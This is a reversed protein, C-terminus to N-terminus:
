KKASPSTNLYKFATNTVVSNLQKRRQDVAEDMNEQSLGTSVPTFETVRKKLDGPTV